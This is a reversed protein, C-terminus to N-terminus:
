NRSPFIGELAISFNLTLYAQEISFPQSGGTVGITVTPPGGLTVNTATGAPLYIEPVVTGSDDVGRGLIAGNAPTQVTAKVTSAQIGSATALHNHAPLQNVTLTNNPTGAQQGITYNPLGPGQGQGNPVRGRLDPLAFTTQGNGGYQTGLLSFLATNQAIPLIQGQCLAYGRPAFNFGAMIIQGIFPEAM